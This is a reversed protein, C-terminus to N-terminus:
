QRSDKTTEEPLERITSIVLVTTLTMAGNNHCCFSSVAAVDTSLSSIEKERDKLLTNNSQLKEKAKDLDIQLEEIKASLSTDLTYCVVYSTVM